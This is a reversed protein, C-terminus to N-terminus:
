KKKKVKPKAKPKAKLKAKPKVVQIIDIVVKYDKRVIGEKTTMKKIFGTDLSFKNGVKLNFVRKM